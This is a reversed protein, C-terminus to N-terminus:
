HYQELEVTDIQDVEVNENTLFRFGDNETAALSLWGNGLLAMADSAENTVPDSQKVAPNREDSAPLSGILYKSGDKMVATLNYFETEKRWVGQPLAAVSFPTIYVEIVAGNNEVTFTRADADRVQVAPFYSFTDYSAAGTDTFALQEVQSIDDYFGAWNIKYAKGDQEHGRVNGSFVPMYHKLKQVDTPCKGGDTYSITMMVAKSQPHVSVDTVEMGIGNIQFQDAPAPDKQKNEKENGADEKDAVSSVSLGKKETEETSPKNGCASLVTCNIYLLSILLLKIKKM